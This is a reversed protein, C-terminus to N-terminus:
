RPARGLGELAFSEPARLAAGRARAARHRDEGLAEAARAALARVAPDATRDIGRLTLATGLLVAASELDGTSAHWEAVEELVSARVTEDGSPAVSELARRLPSRARDPEGRARHVRAIGVNILAVLQPSAMAQGRLLDLAKALLSGAREPDGRRLALEGQVHRVRATAIPDETRSVTAEVRALEAEVGALDGTRLRLQCLRVRVMIPGPVAELGGIETAPAVAEELLSLAGATDGRNEAVLSLWYFAMSLGWRDGTLRYDDVAPWLLGEARAAGARGYEFEVIGGMLRATARTWPVPHGGFREVSALAQRHAEATGVPYGNAIAWSGLAVPHDSERLTGLARSLAAPPDGTPTGPLAALVCLAHATERGPPPEDGVAALVASAWAGAEGRGGRMMWYWLRSMIMRLASDGDGSSIAHDLASDLNGQEVDLAALARLQDGTRLSPEEAEALGVFYRAHGARTRGTEGAEELKEAAYRRLTELLRYRVEGGARPAPVVSLLSRDALSTIVDVGYGCIRRVADATAGGSFVSMRRLLTREGPSLLDWSWDIVARLTRHRPQATRSGRFALRDGIMDALQGVGLSRLRAAVLEIALPIGDLERCIRVVDAVTDADVRLGPLAAAARDGFLTVAPCALADELSAGPAPLGLPLVPYLSEGTIDLPERSTALIRLGGSAALLRDAVRAAEDIVHECNDLVLVPARGRLAVALRELPGNEGHPPRPPRGPTGVHGEPEGRHGTEGAPSEKRGPASASGTEDAPGKEQSPASASGTDNAPSEGHGPANASGTEDAPGEARGPASASGTDGLTGSPGAEGEDSTSGVEAGTWPAAPHDALLGSGSLAAQVAAAVGSPHSLPALEVLWVGDPVDLSAATEIALRTKGVGGPGTLTVLRANGLLEGLRDPEARRGVFSTLRAPLNDRHEVRDGRKRHEEGDRHAARDGRERSEGREPSRPSRAGALGPTGAVAERSGPTTHPSGGRLATLHAARLEPGPDMGLDEALRLRIREYAALAETRRGETLLALVLRTHFPERLPHAAVAEELEAVPGRGLALDTDFRALLASLRLEELRTAPAAAFPLASADALAPGRWLSLAERLLSGAAVPDGSATRGEAALREFAWADVGERPLDLLYGAPHSAVAGPLRRRIRSVLSQLANSPHDPSGEPWLDDILREATVVRGPDLALRVLLIRLRAGHIETGHAHPPGGDVRLPGLIGVRM